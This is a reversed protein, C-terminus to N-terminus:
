ENRQSERELASGVLARFPHWQPPLKAQDPWAVENWAYVKVREELGLQRRQNTLKWIWLPANEECNQASNLYCHVTSLTSRLKGLEMITRGLNPGDEVWLQVALMEEDGDTAILKEAIEEEEIGYLNGLKAGGHYEELEETVDEVQSHVTLHQLERFVTCDCTQIPTLFCDNGVM